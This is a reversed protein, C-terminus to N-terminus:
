VCYKCLTYKYIYLDTHYLHVRLVNALLTHCSGERGISTKLSSSELNPGSNVSEKVLTERMSVANVSTCQAKSVSPKHGIGSIGQFHQSGCSYSTLMLALMRTFMKFRPIWSGGRRGVVTWLMVQRSTTCQLICPDLVLWGFIFVWVLCVLAATPIPRSWSACQIARMEKWKQKGASHWSQSLLIGQLSREHVQLIKIQWSIRFSYKKKEQLTRFPNDFCLSKVQPKLDVEFIGHLDVCM